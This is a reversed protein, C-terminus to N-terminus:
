FMPAPGFTRFTVQDGYGDGESNTAFGKLYVDTNPPIETIAKTDAGEADLGDSSKFNPADKTPNGTFNWCVGRETIVLGGNDEVTYNGTATTTGIVTVAQTTVTPAVGAPVAETYYVVVRVADLRSINEASQAVLLGVGFDASNIEAPTFTLTWLYSSSGLQRWAPFGYVPTPGYGATWAAGANKTVYMWLQADPYTNAYMYGAIELGNITADLPISFGFNKAAYKLSSVGGTYYAYTGNQTGLANAENLWNGQDILTGAYGTQSPM